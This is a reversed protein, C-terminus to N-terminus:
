EVGCVTAKSPNSLLSTLVAEGLGEFQHTEEPDSANPVCDPHTSLLWINTCGGHVTLIFM